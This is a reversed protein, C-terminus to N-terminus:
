ASICGITESRAFALDYTQKRAAHAIAIDGVREHDAVTGDTHVDFVDQAFEAEPRTGLDRRPPRILAGFLPRYNSLEM